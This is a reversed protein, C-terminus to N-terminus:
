KMHQIKESIGIWRRSFEKPTMGTKKRFFSGFHSPTSFSLEYSIEQASMEGERLLKKAETLTYKEIWRAATHGTEKLIVDSLYKVSIGARDAYYQLKREKRFNSEVDTLFRKTISSGIQIESDEMSDTIISCAEYFLVNVYSQIIKMKNGSSIDEHQFDLLYHYIIKYMLYKKDPLRNHPHEYYLINMQMIENRSEKFLLIEPNIAIFDMMFRETPNCISWKTEPAIIIYDQVGLTFKKGNLEIECTGGNCIMVIINRRCEESCSIFKDLEKKRSYNNGIFIIDLEKNM